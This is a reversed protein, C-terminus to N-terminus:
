SADNTGSLRVFLQLYHNTISTLRHPSQSEIVRTGRSRDPPSSLLNSLSILKCQTEPYRPILHLYISYYIDICGNVRSLIYIIITEYTDIPHMGNHWRHVMNHRYRRSSIPSFYANNSMGSFLFTLILEANQTLVRVFTWERRNDLFCVVSKICYLIFQLFYHKSKGQSM